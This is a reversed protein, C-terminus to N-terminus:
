YGGLDADNLPWDEYRDSPPTPAGAGMGVGLSGFAPTTASAPAAGRAPLPRTIAPVPQSMLLFQTGIWETYAPPIAQSLEPVTMWDIGMATQQVAVPIRYVGVEVTRRRNTRNTAQPFRPTQWNHDCPPPLLPASCEFFRHRRM